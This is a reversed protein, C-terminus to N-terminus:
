GKQGREIDASRVYHASVKVRYGGLDAKGARVEIGAGDPITRKAFISSNSKTGTHYHFHKILGIPPVEM